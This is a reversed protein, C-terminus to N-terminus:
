VFGVKKAAKVVAHWYAEETIQTLYFFDCVTTVGQKLMESFAFLAGSYIDEPKLQQSLHNMSESTLTTFPQDDGMGKFLSQFSHTHSNILGPIIMADEFAIMDRFARPQLSRLPAMEQIVGEEVYFFHETLLEGDTYLYDATFYTM